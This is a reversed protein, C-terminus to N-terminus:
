SLNNDTSKDPNSVPIEIGNINRTHYSIYNGRNIERVFESRYMERGSYNDRFKTNRGSRSESIVSIKKRAM